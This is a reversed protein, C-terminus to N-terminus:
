GQAKKTLDELFKTYGIGVGHDERFAESYCDPKSEDDPHCYWDDNIKAYGDVPEGCRKCIHKM